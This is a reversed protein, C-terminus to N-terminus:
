RASRFVFALLRGGFGAAARRRVYRFVRGAGGESRELAAPADLTEPPFDALMSALGAPTQAARAVAGLVLPGVAAIARALAATPVRTGAGLVAAIADASAGLLGGLRPDLRAARWQAAVGIEPADLDAPRGFKLVVDWAATADAPRRTAHRALAAPLLAAATAVVAAAARRRHAPPVDAPLVDALVVAAARAPAGGRTLRRVYRSTVDAV